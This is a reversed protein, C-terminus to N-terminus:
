KTGVLKALKARVDAAPDSDPKIDDKLLYIITRPIAQERKESTKYGKVKIWDEGNEVYVHITEGRKFIVEKQTESGGSFDPKIDALVTLAKNDFEKNLGQVAEKKIIPAVCSALFVVILASRKM